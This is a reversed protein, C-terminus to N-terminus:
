LTTLTSTHSSSVQRCTQAHATGATFQAVAPAPRAVTSRQFGASCVGVARDRWNIAGDGDSVTTARDRQLRGHRRVAGLRRVVRLRLV